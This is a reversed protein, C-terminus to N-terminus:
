GRPVTGERLAHLTKRGCLGALATAPPVGRLLARLVEVPVRVSTSQGNAVRWAQRYDNGADTCPLCLQTGAKRHAAVGAATGHESSRSPADVADSDALASTRASLEALVKTAETLLGRLAAQDEAAKRCNGCPLLGADTAARILEPRGSVEWAAYLRRLHTKVTDETVGLEKAIQANNKGDAVLLLVEHQRPTLLFRVTDVAM